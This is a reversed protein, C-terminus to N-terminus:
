SRLGCRRATSGIEGRPAGLGTFTSGDLEWVCMGDGVDPDVLVVESSDHDGVVLVGFLDGEHDDLVHELLKVPGVVGHVEVSEGTSWRGLMASVLRPM